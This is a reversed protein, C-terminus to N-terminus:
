LTAALTGAAAASAAGEAARRKGALRHLAHAEIWSRARDQMRWSVCSVRANERALARATADHLNERWVRVDHTCISNLKRNNSHIPDTYDAEGNPM